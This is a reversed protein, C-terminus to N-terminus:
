PTDLCMGVARLNLYPNVNTAAQLNIGNIGIGGGLAFRSFPKMPEVPKVIKTTAASSANGSNMGSSASGNPQSMMPIPALLCAFVVCHLPRIM